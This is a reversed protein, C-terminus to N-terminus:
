QKGSTRRTPRSVKLLMTEVIDEVSVETMDLMLEAQHVFQEVDMLARIESSFDKLRLREKNTHLLGTELRTNLSDGRCCDGRSEAGHRCGRISVEADLEDDQQYNRSDSRIGLSGDAKFDDTDQSGQPSVSRQKINNNRNEQEQNIAISCSLEGSTVSPARDDLSM